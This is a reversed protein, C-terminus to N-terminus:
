AILKMSIKWVTSCQVLASRFRKLTKMRWRTILRSLIKIFMGWRQRWAPPDGVCKAFSNPIELFATYLIEDYNLSVPVKFFLGLDPRGRTVSRWVSYWITAVYLAVGMFCTVNNEASIPTLLRVTTLRKFKSPKYEWLGARLGLSLSSWFLFLSWHALSCTERFKSSNICRM